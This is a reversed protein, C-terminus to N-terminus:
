GAPPPLKTHFSHVIRTLLILERLVRRLTTWSGGKSIGGQRKHYVSPLEVPQCGAKILKACIESEVISSGTRLDTFNLQDKRYVKIWNVDRLRIGLLVQNFRKNASSLFKRYLNYDTEPRFFSYFTGIAFPRVQLLEKVDFQGDGPIACVYEMGAAKYGTRLAIGIGKNVPHTIIQMPITASLSRLVSQTDDTSGDDVVIIEFATAM